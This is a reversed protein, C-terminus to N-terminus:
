SKRGSVSIRPVLAGDTSREVEKSARLRYLQGYKARIYALYPDVSMQEGTTRRVLENPKFKRGHRYLKEHLWTNLAGFEGTAIERPVPVLKSPLLM